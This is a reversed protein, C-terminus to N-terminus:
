RTKRWAVTDGKLSQYGIGAQGHVSAKKERASRRLRSRKRIERCPRAWDLASAARAIHGRFRNHTARARPSRIGRRRAGLGLRPTNDRSLPRCRACQCPCRSRVQHTAVPALALEAQPVPSSDPYRSSTPRRSGRDNARCRIHVVWARRLDYPQRSWAREPHPIPRRRGHRCPVQAHRGTEVTKRTPPGLRASCFNCCAKGTCLFLAVQMRKGRLFPRSSTRKSSDDRDADDRLSRIFLLASVRPKEKQVRKRM